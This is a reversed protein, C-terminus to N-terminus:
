SSLFNVKVGISQLTSLLSAAKERGDRNSAARLDLDINIMHGGLLGVWRTGASRAVPM